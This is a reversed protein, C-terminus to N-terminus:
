NDSAFHIQIGAAIRTHRCLMSQFQDQTKNKAFNSCLFYLGLQACWRLERIM